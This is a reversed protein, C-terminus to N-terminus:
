TYVLEGEYFFYDKVLHNARAKHDERKLQLYRALKEDFPNAAYISLVMSSRDGTQRIFHSEAGLLYSKQRHHESFDALKDASSFELM